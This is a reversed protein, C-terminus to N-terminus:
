PWRAKEEPLHTKLFDDALHSPQALLQLARDAQVRERIRASKGTQMVEAPLANQLCTPVLGFAREAFLREDPSGDRSILVHTLDHRTERADICEEDLILLFVWQM